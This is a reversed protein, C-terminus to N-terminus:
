PRRGPPRSLAGPSSRQSSTASDCGGQCAIAIQLADPTKLRYLARLYAAREAVEVDIPRLHLYPSQLLISRYASVTTEANQELPLSLVETLTLTSTILELAGSEAREILARVLPGFTAHREVLYILPATDIGLKAVNSFAELNLSRRGM